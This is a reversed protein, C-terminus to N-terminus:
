LYNIGSVKDRRCAHVGRSGLFKGVECQAPHDGIWCLLICRIVAPGAQIGAVTGKYDVEIGTVSIICMSEVLMYM